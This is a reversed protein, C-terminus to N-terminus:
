DYLRISPSSDVYLERDNLPNTPRNNHDYIARFSQIQAASLETPTRKIMWKVGETCPPTTLSGSYHFFGSDAGTLLSEAFAEPLETRTTDGHAQPLAAWLSGIAPNEAGESVLIGLVALSGDDAENVFHIEMPLHEGDVTHESPSHFHFQKLSYSKGDIQLADPLLANVQVTHGNDLEELVENQNLVEVAQQSLTHVAIAPLESEVPNNLDVPSQHRGEGCLAWESKMSSWMAPGNDDEYGWHVEGHAVERVGAHAEEAAAPKMEDVNQPQADNDGCAALLVVPIVAM